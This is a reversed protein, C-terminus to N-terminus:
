RIEADHGGGSDDDARALDPVRLEAAGEMTSKVLDCVADVYADDLTGAHRGKGGAVDFIQAPDVRSDSCAIIMVRPSQGDALESWRERERKWGTERFRRYGHIMEELQAM